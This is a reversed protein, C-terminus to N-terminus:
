CQRWDWANSVGSDINWCTMAFRQSGTGFASHHARLCTPLLAQRPCDSAWPHDEALEKVCDAVQSRSAGPARPASKSRPPMVDPWAAEQWEPCDVYIPVDFEINRFAVSFERWEMSKRCRKLRSNLEETSADLDALLARCSSTGDWGDLRSAAETRAEPKLQWFFDTAFDGCDSGCIVDLAAMQEGVSMQPLLFPWLSDLHEGVESLLVQRHSPPVLRWEAAMMSACEERLPESSSEVWECALEYTLNKQEETLFDLSFPHTHNVLARGFLDRAMRREHIASLREGRSSLLTWSDLATRMKEEFSLECGFEVCTHMRTLLANNGTPMTRGVVLSCATQLLLLTAPGILLSKKRM